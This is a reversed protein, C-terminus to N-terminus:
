AVHKWSKRHVIYSVLVDTVNFLRGVAINTRGEVTVLHRIRVVDSETLKARGIGAGRAQRSKSVKDATNQQTTGLFLHDPNVCHRVDCKHCVCLGDAIPGVITEYVYRHAKIKKDGLRFQGYDQSFRGATWVWCPGLEPRGKPCPGNKDVKPWFREEPTLKM